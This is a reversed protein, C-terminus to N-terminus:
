RKDDEDSVGEQANVSALKGAEDPKSAKDKTRALYGLLIQAKGADNTRTPLDLGSLKECVDGIQTLSWKALKTEEGQASYAWGQYIRLRDSLRALGREPNDMLSPMLSNGLLQPPIHGERVQKCYERHLLDALALFRGLLLPAKSMYEGKMLKRKYLLLGLLSPLLGAHKPYQANLKVTGDGRHDAHGLALLLPASHRIVLSLARSVIQEAIPGAELLLALGEGIRLGHVQDTRSGGQLWAVGLSQVVEAPFPTLPEIWVPREASGTNLRILPINRCGKTWEEAGAILASADYRKSVLVKTRAKDAKTLVFVRIELDSRHAARGTLARTVRGAATEFFAGDPDKAEDQRVFVGALEPPDQDISSPYVLFLGPVPVTKGDRKTFGCAGSADEWTKGKREDRDPLPPCIWELASKMEKRMAAGTPFGESAIRGYRTQCPTQKNMSRLKTNGIVPLDVAPFVETSDVDTMPRGFADALPSVMHQSPQGTAELLRANVWAVVRVHNPPYPFASQDPLEMLIPYKKEGGAEAALAGMWANVHAEGEKLGEVISRKVSEELEVVDLKAARGILEDISRFDEPISDSVSRLREGLGASNLCRRIRDREEQNWRSRCAQFLRDLHHILMDKDIMKQKKPNVLKKIAKLLEKADDSEASLLPEIKFGPFTFNNAEGFTRFHAARTSHDFPKLSCATQEQGIMMLFKPKTWPRYLRHWDHRTIGASHISSNLVFLENLM